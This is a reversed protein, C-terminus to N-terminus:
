SCFLTEIAIINWNFINFINTINIILVWFDCCYRCCIKINISDLKRICEFRFIHIWTCDNHNYIKRHEYFTFITQYKKSTEFHTREMSNNFENLICEWHSHFIDICTFIFYIWKIAAVGIMNVLRFVPMRNCKHNISHKEPANWMKIALKSVCLSHLCVVFWVLGPMTWGTYQIKEGYYCCHLM